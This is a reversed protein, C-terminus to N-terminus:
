KKLIGDSLKKAESLFFEDMEKKSNIEDNKSVVNEVKTIITGHLYANRYVYIFIFSLIFIDVGYIIYTLASAGAGALLQAYCFLISLLPIIGLAILAHKSLTLKELIDKSFTSYIKNGTSIYKRRFYVSLTSAGMIMGLYPLFLIMSITLIYKLLLVHNASPPIALQDFNM